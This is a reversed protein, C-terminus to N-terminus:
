DNEITDIVYPNADTHNWHGLNKHLSRKVNVKNRLIGFDFDHPDMDFYDCLFHFLSLFFKDKISEAEDESIEDM